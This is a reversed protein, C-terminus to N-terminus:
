NIIEFNFVKGFLLLFLVFPGEHRERGEEVTHILSVVSEFAEYAQFVVRGKRRVVLLVWFLFGLEKERRTKGSFGDSERSDAGTEFRAPRGIAYNARSSWTHFVFVSCSVIGCGGTLEGALRAPREVGIIGVGSIVEGALPLSAHEAVEAPVVYRVPDSGGIFSQPRRHGTRDFWRRRRRCRRVPRIVLRNGGAGALIRRLLRGDGILFRRLYRSNTFVFCVVKSGSESREHRRAHPSNTILTFSQPRFVSHFYSFDVDVM